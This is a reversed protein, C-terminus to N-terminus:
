TVSYHVIGCQGSYDSYLFPVSITMAKFTHSWNPSGAPEWDVVTFPMGNIVQVTSSSMEVLVVEGTTTVGNLNKSVHIAELGPIQMIRERISGVNPYNNTTVLYDENLRVSYEWPIYLVWPGFHNDAMSANVMKNVDDFIEEPTTGVVSWDGTLTGINRDPFETYGYITSGAATYKGNFLTEELLRSVSRTAEEVLQTRLPLGVRAAEAMQKTNVPFDKYTVVLPVGISDFDLAGSEGRTDPSVAMNADSMNSVRERTYVTSSLGDFSVNTDPRSNLDAIGVLESKAVAILREDIYKWAREPLSEANVMDTPRYKAIDFGVGNYSNMLAAAVSGSPSVNNVVEMNTKNESM